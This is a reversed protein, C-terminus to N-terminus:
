IKIKKELEIEKKNMLAYDEDKIHDYGMLHLMSHIILKKIEDEVKAGYEKAQKKCQWLCLAIDGFHILGEDTKLMVYEESNKNLVEGVKLQTSPFSLVDTVRDIGRSERNLRRIEKKSVFSVAVELEDPQKMKKITESAVNTAIQKYKKRALGNVDIKSM